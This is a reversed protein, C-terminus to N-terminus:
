NKRGFSASMSADPAGGGKAQLTKRGGYQRTLDALFAEFADGDIPLEVPKRTLGAMLIANGIELGKVGDSGPAILPEDKLVANVFNQALAKTNDAFETKPVPIDVDWSEPKEFSSPSNERFDRTGQRNMKFSLKGNEAVIKGKDGAIELRDTGPAEGTTTIFHGTAGNSYEMIASVEDEVEIPHTKGIHAVATIRSPMMGTLWHLQDLNHPCQNILVGGGEGAWTARWGGSAYYSNTRFWTTVIWTIRTIEGVDGGLIMERLKHLVPNMRMQFNMGFKLHPHKAAADNMRRAQKVTVAAPKECLVHLGNEFAAVTIDPHQFHPTAILVADIAKSKLLDEYKSFNQATPFKAAATELKNADAECIATLKAGAISDLYACHYSGMNGMGIVGFRVTEMRMLIRNAPINDVGM